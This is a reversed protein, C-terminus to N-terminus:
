APGSRLQPIGNWMRRLARQTEKVQKYGSATATFYTKARGGRSATAEGLSSCILGDEELHKLASYVVGIAIGRGTCKGIEQAIPVGYANEGLRMIALMVMLETQSLYTRSKM